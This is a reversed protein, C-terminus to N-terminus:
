RYLVSMGYRNVTNQTSEPQEETEGAEGAEDPNPDGNLSAAITMLRTIRNLHAMLDANNSPSV